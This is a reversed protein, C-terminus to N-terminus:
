LLALFVTCGCLLFLCTVAASHWTRPFCFEQVPTSQGAVFKEGLSVRIGSGYELEVCCELAADNGEDQASEGRGTKTIGGGAVCSASGDILM